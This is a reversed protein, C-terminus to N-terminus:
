GDRPKSKLGRFWVDPLFKTVNYWFTFNRERSTSPIIVLSVHRNVNCKSTLSTSFEPVDKIYNRKCSTLPIEKTKGKNLPTSVFSRRVIHTWELEHGDKWFIFGTETSHTGGWARYFILTLFGQSFSSKLIVAFDIRVSIRSQGLTGLVIIINFLPTLDCIREYIIGRHDLLNPFCKIQTHIVTVLLNIVKFQLLPPMPSKGNDLGFQVRSNM